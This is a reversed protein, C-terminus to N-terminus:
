PTVAPLALKLTQAGGVLELLAPGQGAELQYGVPLDSEGAPVPGSWFPVGDRRLTLTVPASAHVRFMLTDGADYRQNVAFREVVGAPTRVAVKLEVVPLVDGAGREVLQAPDGRAPPEEVVLLTLAAMAAMGVGAIVRTRWAGQARERQYQAVTRRVLAEPPEIPGLERFRADFEPDTM